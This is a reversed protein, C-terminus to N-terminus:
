TGEKKGVYLAGIIAVLFLLIIAEFPFFFDIYLLKGIGQVTGFDDPLTEQAKPLDIFHKGLLVLTCFFSAGALILLIPSSRMKHHKIHQYADQFLIIVYMFIVLIAGAYVLIQMVAIFQAHLQLYLVSLTFLTMLFSLAAYVPKRAFVVGLSSLILIAGLIWQVANAIM